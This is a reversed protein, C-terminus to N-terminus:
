VGQENDEIELSNFAQWNDKFIQHFERQSVPKKNSPTLQVYAAYVAAQISVRQDTIIANIIEEDRPNLYM